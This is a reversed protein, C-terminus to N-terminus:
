HPVPKWPNEPSVPPYDLDLDVSPMGKKGNKLASKLGDKVPSSIGGKFWSPSLMGNAPLLTIRYETEMQKRLDEELGPCCDNLIKLMGKVADADELTAARARCDLFETNLPPELQFALKGWPKILFYQFDPSDVLLDNQNLLAESPGEEEVETEEAVEQITEIDSASAFHARKPENKKREKEKEAERKQEEVKSWKNVATQFFAKREVRAHESIEAPLAMDPRLHFPTFDIDIKNKRGHECEAYHQDGDRHRKWDAERCHESCYNAHSCCHFPAKRFCVPNACYPAIQKACAWFAKDSSFFPRQKELAMQFSLVFDEPLPSWPNKGFISSEILNHLYIAHSLTMPGCGHKRSAVMMLDNRLSSLGDQMDEDKRFIITKLFNVKERNSIIFQFKQLHALACEILLDHYTNPFMIVDRCWAGITPEKALLDAIRVYDQDNSNADAFYLFQFFLIAGEPQSSADALLPKLYESNARDQSEMISRILMVFLSKMAKFEVPTMYEKRFPLGLRCRMETLSCDQAWKQKKAIKCRKVLDKLSKIMCQKYSRPDDPNPKPAGNESEEEDVEEEENDDADEEEERKQAAAAAAKAKEEEKQKKSSSKSVKQKTSVKPSKKKEAM